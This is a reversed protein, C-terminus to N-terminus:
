GYLSFVSPAALCVPIGAAIEALYKAYVAAHDSTGRAAVFILEVGRERCAGGLREMAGGGRELLGGVVAAQQRIEDLMYSMPKTSSLLVAYHTIRSGYHTLPVPVLRTRNRM